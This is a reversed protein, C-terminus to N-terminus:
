GTHQENEEVEEMEEKLLRRVAQRILLSIRVQKEMALHALKVYEADSLYTNVTPM